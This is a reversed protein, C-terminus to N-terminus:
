KFESNKINAEEANADGPRVVLSGSKVTMQETTADVTYELDVVDGRQLDSLKLLKKEFPFITEPNVLFRKEAGSDGIVVLFSGTDGNKVSQVAGSAKFSPSSITEAGAGSFSAFLIVWCFLILKM